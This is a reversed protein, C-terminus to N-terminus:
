GRKKKAARKSPKRKKEPTTEVVLKKKIQEDLWALQVPSPDVVDCIGKVFLLTQGAMHFTTTIPNVVRHNDRHMIAFQRM